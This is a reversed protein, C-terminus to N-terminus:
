FIEIDTDWSNKGKLKVLKKNFHGFHRTKYGDGAVEGENSM